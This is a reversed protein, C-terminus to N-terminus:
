GLETRGEHRASPTLRAEGDTAAPVVRSAVVAARAVRSAVVVAAARAVRSAVMAAKAVVNVAV